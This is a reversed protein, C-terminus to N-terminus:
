YLLIFYFSFYFIYGIRSAGPDVISQLELQVNKKEQGKPPKYDEYLSDEIESVNPNKAFSIKTEIKAEVKRAEYSRITHTDSSKKNAEETPYIKTQKQHVVPTSFKLHAHRRSQYDRRSIETETLPLDAVLPSRVRFGYNNNEGYNSNSDSITRSTLLHRNSENPHGSQYSCTVNESLPKSVVYSDSNVTTTDDAISYYDASDEKRHEATPIGSSPLDNDFFSIQPNLSQTKAIKIKGTNRDNEENKALYSRRPLPKPCNEYLKEYWPEGQSM